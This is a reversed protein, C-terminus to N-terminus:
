KNKKQKKKKNKKKTKKEINVPKPANLIAKKREELITRGGASLQHGLYKVKEQCFQLKNKSLKHGEQALHKLLAITDTVCGEKTESALLCDDVYILLQSKSPPDFTSLSSAIVQSYITPSECYGQPLRTYTYRKGKFTFAFWYQSDKHVPVSFFANSIDVVTFYKAKPDLSNLLTHPDPVCPSKQVVAQNVAVLDQVM